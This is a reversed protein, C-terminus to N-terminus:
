SFLNVEQVKKEVKKVKKFHSLTFDKKKKVTEYIESEIGQDSFIWFIVNKAREKTTMRDRSQFYSTASFDINMYVLFDAKKLSIGERGAVIQLAISKGSCDFERIDTTLLDGFVNKLMELEGKFKYFIGIKKGKFIRKIEQAKSDDLIKVSGDELKVSGSHIQHIKQMLKVPTDGLIVGGNKGQFVKHEELYDTLRWIKENMKVRIVKEEVETKFGAEKQTYSIFYEGVVEKILKENADSYDNVTNGYSITKKKVNVFIKSWQYFSTQPFPTRDSIWFQHFIQSYSEPTPTGSLLILLKSGVIQKIKKTRASPKPFAGLAHSEDVVVIDVGKMDAKHVSEYNILRLEFSPKMLNYDDSITLSEIVKKRTIFLMVKAKVNEAIALTTLTKGTRVEMALSLIGFKLLKKTGRSSIEKQYDRLEFM